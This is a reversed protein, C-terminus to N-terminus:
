MPAQLKVRKIYCNQMHAKFFNISTIIMCYDVNKFHINYYIKVHRKTIERQLDEEGALVSKNEILTPQNANELIKHLYFWM